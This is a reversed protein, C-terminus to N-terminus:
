CKLDQYFRMAKALSRFTWATKGFDENGPIAEHEPITKGRFVSEPRVRIKFVEFYPVTSNVDQCYIAKREERSVQTYNYGNKRFELPLIQM